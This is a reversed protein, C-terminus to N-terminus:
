KECEHNSDERSGDRSDQREDEDRAFIFAYGKAGIASFAIVALHERCPVEETENRHPHNSAENKQTNAAAEIRWIFARHIAFPVM